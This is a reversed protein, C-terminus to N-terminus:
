QWIGTAEFAQARKKARETIKEDFGVAGLLRIANRSRAKGRHIEYSFVVDKRGTGENDRLEEEFHYNDYDAALLESLEIDHTAAFCLVGSKAFTELIESSAAIREITNTGRLVEDIFCLVPNEPSDKARAADVIRKLSKIEVMFYSDGAQISDRLAMSSYIRYYRGRYEEACVTLITQGLLAALAAAKLFTSKGSANSGTLLIPRAAEISNPVPHELLPHYLDTARLGIDSGNEKGTIFEPTCYYSLSRRYSAISIETDIRGVIEIVRDVDARQAEAVSLMQNFKILDLHFVMRIYDLLLDFPNGNGGERTLMFSGKRFGSLRGAADRLADLDLTLDKPADTMPVALLRDSCKLLRLLYRFSVIYPDIRGKENLYTVMNVISALVLLVIGIQVNAFMIAIAAFPLVFHMYERFSNREGLEDLLDLYDYLSFKGTHGLDYLAREMMLRIKENDDQQFYSVAGEHVTADADSLSPTRLVYYLYEEGAASKTIDIRNYVADLDLDNWTIDDIARASRHKLYYGPVRAYREPSMDKSPIAGFQRTFLSHLVANRRRNNVFGLWATVIVVTILFGLFTVTSETM